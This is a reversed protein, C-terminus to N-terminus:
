RSPRAADRLPTAAARTSVGVKDYIHQVHHHVTSKSLWLHEAMQQDSRGRAVLRLVEVERESLGAPWIHRRHQVRHGAAALVGSVAEGDLRRAQAEQLLVDAAEDPSRPPRHPRPETLAQYVDAAQLLRAAMSLSAAPTGRHYGSGDLREHHLGALAGLQALGEPRALIRESYYPHLRVREWESENLPGPKGWVGASIGVRGLDHLLGARWVTVLDADSLRSRRAAEIALAAVGTSHGALYPSKLDAFDAIAGLAADFETESLYRRAGPEAALAAEWSPGGELRSFLRSAEQCLREVLRPDHASGARERAVAVAADVGGIRHWTEADQALRVVRVPLAVDEGRLGGPQGKGDWREYVQGLGRQVDLGLGLRDALRQGVECHAAPVEKMTPLRAFATAVRQARRLPPNGEGIHRIMAALVKPPQASAISAYWEGTAVEDGFVAALVHADATCGVYQLLALYYVTRLEDDSLGLLEGLHVALVCRRLAHEMPQGSGLDTALSLAAILEPLRVETGDRHHQVVAGGDTM